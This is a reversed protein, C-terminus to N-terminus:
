VAKPMAGSIVAFLSYYGNYFVYDWNFIFNLPIAVVSLIALPIYAYVSDIFKPRYQKSFWAWVGVLVMLYHAFLSIFTRFQYVPYYRLVGPLFFNALGGIVGFTFLYGDASRKVGGKGWVSLIIVYKYISCIQLPLDEYWDYTKYVVLNWITKVVDIVFLTIMVAIM